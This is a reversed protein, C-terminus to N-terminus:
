QHSEMEAEKMMLFVISIARCPNKCTESLMNEPRSIQMLTQGINKWAMWYIRGHANISIRNEIAIPWAYQPSNCPDFREGEFEEGALVADIFAPRDFGLAVAVKANIIEDTLLRYDNM